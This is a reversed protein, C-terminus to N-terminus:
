DLRRTPQSFEEGGAPTRPKDPAAAAADDRTGLRGIEDISCIPFGRGRPTAPFDAHFRFPITELSVIRKLNVVGHLRVSTSM